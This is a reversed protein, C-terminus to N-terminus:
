GKVKPQKPLAVIAIIIGMTIFLACVLFSLRFGFASNSMGLISWKNTKAMDVLAGYLYGAPAAPVMLMTVFAMNKRLEDPRSASLIYNPAYVGVLEGAGFIGIALLYYPGTVFMAWLQAALFLSSTALIGARPNTRTLLWGLFLGAVVKFAFRMMNMLGAYKAPSEGLVESSYLNMNSPIVNGSYVLITVITAVLLIRQSLITRFHIVFAIAAVIGAGYGVIRISENATVSAMQMAGVAMFMLPLGILLGLVSSAPEREVEREVPPVVFFQSLLAAFLMVPSGIGFLTIFNWPYDKGPLRYGFLEGGLLWTQIASGVVALIPGVGFALSLALGRRAESSGRGLAEWLFAIAAPMAAGSVGGQLVVIAVKIHNAVPLSLTVATLGLMLAAVGYCFLLNRKLASVYPSWWAILAPMATMAFYFTAPLNATRTDAGLKDCLSAQTVGVYLVPAALYLMGTCCAFLILNRRQDPWSLPCEQSSNTM